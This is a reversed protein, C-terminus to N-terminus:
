QWVAQFCYNVIGSTMDRISMNTRASFIKKYVLDFHEKLSEISKAFTTCLLLLYFVVERAVTSLNDLQVESQCKQVTAGAGDHLPTTFRALSPFAEADLSSIEECPAAM